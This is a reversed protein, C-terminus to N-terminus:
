SFSFSSNFCFLKTFFSSYMTFSEYKILLKIFIVSIFLKSISLFHTKTLSITPIEFCNNYLYLFDCNGYNDRDLEKIYICFNYNDINIEIKDNRKIVLDNIVIGSDIDNLDIYYDSYIDSDFYDFYLLYYIDNRNILFCTTDDRIFRISNNSLYNYDEEKRYYSSCGTLLLIMFVLYIKKM